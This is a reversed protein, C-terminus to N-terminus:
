GIVEGRVRHRVVTRFVIDHWARRNHDLLIGVYGILWLPAFMLGIAARLAAQVLSLRRGNSREVAIGILLGGATQGSSWWCFTFYAWPLVAALIGSVTGLWQPSDGLVQTWALGPLVSISLATVTILVVDIALATSRSAFGAYPSTTAADVSADLVGTM